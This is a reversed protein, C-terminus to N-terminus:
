FLLSLCHAPWKWAKAEREALELLTVHFLEQWKNGSREGPKGIRMSGYKGIRNNFFGPSLSNSTQIQKVQIAKTEIQENGLGRKGLRRGM